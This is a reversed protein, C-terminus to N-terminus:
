NMLVVLVDSGGLLDDTFTVDLAGGEAKRSSYSDGKKVTFPIYEGTERNLNGNGVSAPWFKLPFQEVSGFRIEADLFVELVINFNITPDVILRGGAFPLQRTELVDVTKQTFELHAKKLEGVHM